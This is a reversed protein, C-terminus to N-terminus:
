FRDKLVKKAEKSVPNNPYETMVKEYLKKAEEEKGLHFYANAMLLEAQPLFPTHPNLGILSKLEDIARHYDGEQFFYKSYLLSIEGSLKAMPFNLEWENLGKLAAELENQQLYTEVAEAYAGQRIIVEKMSMGKAAKMQAQAYIQRAKEYEGKERYIDGIRIQSLRAKDPHSRRYGSAVSRYMKIARDYDKLRHFCLEARAFKAKLIEDRNREMDVLRSYVAIAKKPDTTEYCRALIGTLRLVTKKRSRRFKNLYVECVRLLYKEEETEELLNIFALLYDKDMERCSYTGIIHAYKKLYDKNGITLNSISENIRVLFKFSDKQGGRRLTLKVPYDKVGAYIHSPSKDTSATGDGFDWHYSTRKGKLGSSRDSFSVWTYQIGDEIIENEQDIKFYAVLDQDLKEYGIEKARGAQLYAQDPIIQFRSEGPTKWATIMFQGGYEEVHYYSIKRLGRTLRVEASHEGRLGGHVGHGGPWEVVLKDDIFLFSADDSLTAIEYTGEEAINLYGQFISLYNDDPGYPNLGHWIKDVFGRGCIKKSKRLLARMGAWDDAMGGPNEKTELVLSLKPKWAPRSTRFIKPNNYYISYREGKSKGQFALTTKGAREYWIVVFPVRKKDKDIIVLDGADEDLYGGGAFTFAVVDSGETPEKDIEIVRRCKWERNWWDSAGWTTTALIPFSALVFLLKLGSKKM